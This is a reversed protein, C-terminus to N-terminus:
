APARAAVFWALAAVEPQSVRQLVPGPTASCCAAHEAADLVRSPLGRSLARRSPTSASPRHWRARWAWPSPTSRGKSAAYALSSGRGLLGGVSSINVVAGQGSEALAARCARTMQWPGVLNVASTHEFDAADLAELEAHPVFRTSGASNVLARLGGFHAQAQGAVARCQADDRVDLPLGARARGPGRM